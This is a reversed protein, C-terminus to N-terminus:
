PRCLCEDAVPRALPRGPGRSPFPSAFGPRQPKSGADGHRPSLTAVGMGESVVGRPGWAASRLASSLAAGGASSKAPSCFASQRNGRLLFPPLRGGSAPPLPTRIPSRGGHPSASSLPSLLVLADRVPRPGGAGRRRGRRGGPAARHPRLSRTRTPPACRPGPHGARSADQPRPAPGRGLGLPSPANGGGPFGCGAVTGAQATSQSAGRDILRRHGRADSRSASAPRRPSLTNLPTLAATRGDTGIRRPVVGPSGPDWPAAVECRARGQSRGWGASARQAWGRQASAVVGRGQPRARKRRPYM